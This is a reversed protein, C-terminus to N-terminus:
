LSYNGCTWAYTLAGPGLGDPDFADTADLTFNPLLTDSIAIQRNGGKITTHLQSREVSITQSLGIPSITFVGNSDTATINM